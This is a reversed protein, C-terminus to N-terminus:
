VASSKEKLGKRDFYYCFLLGAAYALIDLYDFTGTIIRPWYLTMVETVVGVLLISVFTREPTIGFWNGFVPVRPLRQDSRSLGRLNIYIWAPCTLDSLYNTLFGGRVRAMVLAAGVIWCALLTWYLISWYKRQM